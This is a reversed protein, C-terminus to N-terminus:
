LSAATCPEEGCAPCDAHAPHLSRVRVVSGDTSVCVTGNEATSLCPVGARGFDEMQATWDDYSSCSVVALEPSAWRVFDLARSSALGHHPAKLILVGDLPPLGDVLASLPATRADGTFLIRVAGHELLLVLSNDDLEERKADSHLAIPGLATWQFCETMWQSGRPKDLIQPMPSDPDCPVTRAAAVLEDAVDPGVWIERIGFCGFVQDLYAHHDEHPHTLVLVDIVDDDVYTALAPLFTEVCATERGGADILAEWDGCDLLIADGHGVDIFYVDLTPAAAGLTGHAFGLLLLVYIVRM